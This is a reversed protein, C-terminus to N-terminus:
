NADSKRTQKKQDSVGPKSTSLIVRMAEEFNKAAEKGTRFEAIHKPRGGRPHSKQV